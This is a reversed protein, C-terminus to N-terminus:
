ENKKSGKKKQLKIFYVSLTSWEGWLQCEIKIKFHIFRVSYLFPFFIFYFLIFHFFCCFGSQSLSLLTDFRHAPMITHMFLYIHVIFALSSLPSAAATAYNFLSTPRDTTVVHAISSNIASRQHRRDGLTTWNPKQGLLFPFWVHSPRDTKAENKREVAAVYM